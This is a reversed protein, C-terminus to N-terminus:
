DRAGPAAETRLPTPRALRGAGYAPTPKTSGQTSRTRRGEVLISDSDTDNEAILDTALALPPFRHTASVRVDRGIQIFQDTPVRLTMLSASGAPIPWLRECYFEHRDILGSTFSGCLWGQSRIELSDSPLPAGIDVALLLESAPADGEGEVALTLVFEAHDPYSARKAQVTASLDIGPVVPLRRALQNNM